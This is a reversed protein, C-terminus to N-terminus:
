GSIFAYNHEATATTQEQRTPEDIWSDMLWEIQQNCVYRWMTNGALAVANEVQQGCFKLATQQKGERERGEERREERRSRWYANGFPCPVGCKEVATVRRWGRGRGRRRRRRKIPRCILCFNCNCSKVWFRLRMGLETWYKSLIIVSVVYLLPVLLPLLLLLLPLLIFLCRFIQTATAATSWEAQKNTWVNTLKM